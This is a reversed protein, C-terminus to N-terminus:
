DGIIMVVTVICGRARKEGGLVGLAGEKRMESAGVVNEM